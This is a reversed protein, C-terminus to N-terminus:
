ATQRSYYWLDHGMSTRGGSMSGRALFGESTCRRPVLCNLFCRVDRSSMYFIFKQFYCRSECVPVDLCGCSVSYVIFTCKECSSPVDLCSQSTM